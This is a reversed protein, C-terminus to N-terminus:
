IEEGSYQKLKISLDVTFESNTYNEGDKVPTGIDSDLDNENEDNIWKFYLQIKNVYGANIKELPIVAIYKYEDSNYKELSEDQTITEEGTKKFNSIVHDFKINWAIKDINYKEKITADLTSEVNSVTIEYIISVDTDKPDIEIETYFEDGPSIKNDISKESSIKTLTLQNEFETFNDATINNGDIDINWIGLRNEYNGEIETKYLAYM